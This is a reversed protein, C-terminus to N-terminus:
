VTHSLFKVKFELTQNSFTDFFIGTEDINVIAELPYRNVELLNTVETTFENFKEFADLPLKQAIKTGRRYVINNRNKVGRLWSMSGIFDKNKQMQAIIQAEKLLIANTMLMGNMRADRFVKVLDAEISPFFPPRGNTGKNEIGVKAWRRLTTEPIDTQFAVKQFGLKNTLELAKLKTGETYTRRINIQIPNDQRKKNMSENVATKLQKLDQSLQFDIKRKRQHFTRSPITPAEKREEQQSLRSDISNLRCLGSDQSSQVKSSPEKEFDKAYSNNKEKLVRFTRSPQTQTLGEEEVASQDKTKEKNGRILTIQTNEDNWVRLQDERQEEKVNSESNSESIDLNQLKFPLSNSM